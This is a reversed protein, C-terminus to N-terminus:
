KAIKLSKLQGFEHLKNICNEDSQNRNLNKDHSRKNAVKDFRM